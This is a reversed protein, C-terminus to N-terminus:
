GQQGGMAALAARTCTWRAAMPTRRPNGSAFLRGVQAGILKKVATEAQWAELSSDYLEEGQEDPGMSALANGAEVILRRLAIIESDTILDPASMTTM